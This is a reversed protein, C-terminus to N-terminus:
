DNDTALIRRAQKSVREPEAPDSRLMLNEKLPM